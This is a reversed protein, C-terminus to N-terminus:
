MNSSSTPPIMLKSINNENGEKALSKALRTDMGVM